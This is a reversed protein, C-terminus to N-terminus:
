EDRGSRRKAKGPPAHRSKKHIVSEIQLIQGRPDTLSPIVRNTFHWTQRAATLEEQAKEGKLLLFITEPRTIPQALRFLEAVSAVARATIIDATIQKLAEVRGAHIITPLGLEDVVARLFAAKKQISEVLHITLDPMKEAAMIALILGPFGAGSGIDVLTKAHKPLLPFLQASDAFHRQALQPLTSAAVLNMREQWERLLAAYRVFKERSEQSVNIDVPTFDSETM